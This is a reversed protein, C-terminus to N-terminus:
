AWWHHQYTGGVSWHRPLTKEHYKPWTDDRNDKVLKRGEDTLSIRQIQPKKWTQTTMTISVLGREELRKAARSKSSSSKWGPRKPSGWWTASYNWGMEKHRKEDDSIWALMAKQMKSLGKSPDNQIKNAMPKIRLVGFTNLLHQEFLM